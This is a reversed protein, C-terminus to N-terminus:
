PDRSVQAALSKHLWLTERATQKKIPHPQHIVQTKRQALKSLSLGAGHLAQARFIPLDRLKQAARRSLELFESTKGTPRDHAQKFGDYAPDSFRAKAIRRFLLRYDSLM